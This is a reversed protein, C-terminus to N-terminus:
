CTPNVFDHHLKTRSVSHFCLVLLGLRSEWSSSRSSCTSRNHKNNTPYLFNNLRRLYAHSINCSWTHQALTTHLIPITQIRIPAIYKIRAHAHHTSMNSSAFIHKCLFYTQTKYSVYALQIHVGIQIYLGHLMILLCTYIYICSKAHFM